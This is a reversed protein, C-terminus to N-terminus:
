TAENEILKKLIKDLKRRRRRVNVESGAEGRCIEGCDSQM